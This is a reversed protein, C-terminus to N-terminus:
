VLGRSLLPSDYKNLILNEEITCTKCVGLLMRNAPIHAMGLLRRERVSAHTINKHDFIVNGKTPQRLGTLVEVLETQGNGEVGAIGVIEGSHINLNIGRLMNSGRANLAHLDKVSLLEEKTQTFPKDVQLMVDRGVMLKALEQQTTLQTKREGTVVGRRMVTINDTVALVERLKHTIFIVTCDIKILGRLVKFLEDTMQPTLVSTPEDLILIHAGRYLAKIIEVRQMQGVSLQYVRTSLDIALSYNEMLNTIIRKAKKIDNLGFRTPTKGLIINELVTMSPSLMFEQHVMGIGLDIADRPSYINVKKDYVFIDGEDPQVLGYLINMLTTKGAGNEGVLGHIEGKAVHLSVDNNAIVKAFSKTIHDVKVAYETM